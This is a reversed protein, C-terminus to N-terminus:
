KFHILKKFKRVRDNIEKLTLCSARETGFGEVNFSAIITGYVVAKKITNKNIKRVKTLYGIFGGAFTDGAGTPDVLKEVPYAPLSFISNEFYAIVGHEGKKVLVIKPGIKKLEKAANILHREGSIARAEADNALFIDAKKLIRFLSERKNNIWYNMTDLAVLRPSQIRNLLKMQIDPDVNALFINKIRRQARNIEPSFASLVGLHTNLTIAENLDGTYEGSWRFSEGGQKRVSSIDLGKARLFDLHRRPFDEGIVSVLNVDAFFRAALAFHTASGGLIDCRKGSPTKVTDLAVTGLALLKM